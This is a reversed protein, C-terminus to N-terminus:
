LKSFKDLFSGDAIDRFAEIYYDGDEFVVPFSMTQGPLRAAVICTLTGSMRNEVLDLSHVYLYLPTLYPYSREKAFNGVFGEQDILLRIDKSLYRYVQAPDNANVADVFAQARALAHDHSKRCGPVAYESYAYGAAMLLLALSLLLIGIGKKNM